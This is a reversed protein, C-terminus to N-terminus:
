RLRYYLEGCTRARARQGPGAPGLIFEAALWARLSASACTLCYSRACRRLGGTANPTQLFSHYLNATANDGCDYGKCAAWPLFWREYARDVLKERVMTFWPLAKAVNRYTAQRGGRGVAANAASQSVQVEDCDEPTDRAWAYMGNVWTNYSWGWAAAQAPPFPAPPLGSEDCPMIITSDNMRFTPPWPPLSARACGLLLAFALARLRAFM